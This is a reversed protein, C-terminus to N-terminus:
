AGVEPRTMALAPDPGGVAAATGPAAFEDWVGIVRIPGSTTM